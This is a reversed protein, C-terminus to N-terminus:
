TRCRNWIAQGEEDLSRAEEVLGGVQTEISDILRRLVVSTNSLAEGSTSASREALLLETAWAELGANVLRRRLHELGGYYSKMVSSDILIPSFLNRFYRARSLSLRM